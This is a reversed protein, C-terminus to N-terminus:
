KRLASIIPRGFIMFVTFIVIGVVIHIFFNPNYYDLGVIASQGNLTKISISDGLQLNFVKNPSFCYFKDTIKEGHENIYSYTIISPHANNIKVKYDWEIYEIIATDQIGNQMIEDYDIEPIDSNAVQPIIILLPTIIVIILIIFPFLGRSKFSKKEDKDLRFNSKYNTTM